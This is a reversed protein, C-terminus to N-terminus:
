KKFTLIVFNDDDNLLPAAEAPTYRIRNCWGGMDKCSSCCKRKTVDPERLCEAGNWYYNTSNCQTYNALRFKSSIDFTDSKGIIGRYTELSKQVKACDEKGGMCIIKLDEQMSSVNGWTVSTYSGKINYPLIIEQLSANGSFSRYAVACADPIIISTLKNNQFSQQGIAKLSDPFNIQQFNNHAFAQLGISELSNDLEVNEANMKFFAGTGIKSIGEIKINKIVSASNAWPRSNGDADFYNSEEANRIYDDIKGISGDAGGTIKLTDGDVSWCCNTGCSQQGTKCNIDTDAWSESIIGLSLMAVSMILVIKNM